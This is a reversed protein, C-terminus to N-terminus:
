PGKELTKLMPEFSGEEKYTGIAIISDGEKINSNKIGIVKLSKGQLNGDDQGIANDGIIVIDGAEIKGKQHKLIYLIALAM